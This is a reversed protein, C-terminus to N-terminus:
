LGSLPGGGSVLEALLKIKSKGPELVTLFSDKNSMFCISKSLGKNNKKM